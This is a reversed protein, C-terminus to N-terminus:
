NKKNEFRLNYVRNKTDYQKYLYRQTEYVDKRIM